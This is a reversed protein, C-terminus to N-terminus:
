RRGADSLSVPAEIKSQERPVPEARLADAVKLQGNKAKPKIIRQGNRKASRRNLATKRSARMIQTKPRGNKLRPAPQHSGTPRPPAHQLRPKEVWVRVTSKTQSARGAQETLPKGRKGKRHIHRKLKRDRLKAGGFDGCVL